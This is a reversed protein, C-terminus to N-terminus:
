GESRVVVVLDAQKGQLKKTLIPSFHHYDASLKQCQHPDQIVQLGMDTLETAVQQWHIM